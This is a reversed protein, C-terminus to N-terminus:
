PPRVRDFPGATEGPGGSVVGILVCGVTVVVGALVTTILETWVLKSSVRTWDVGTLGLGPEDLRERPM